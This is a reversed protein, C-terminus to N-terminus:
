KDGCGLALLTANGGVATVNITQTKETIFRLLLNSDTLVPLQELDTEIIFQAIQGKRTALRQNIAIAEERNGIFTVGAIAPAKILPLLESNSVNTVVNNVANNNIGAQYFSDCLHTAFTQQQEPLSLLVTNGAILAGSLFGIIAMEPMERQAAIVFVGRGATTLTNIEGTPGPMIIAEALLTTGRRVQYDIMKSANIVSNEILIASWDQLLQGRQEINIENWTPWAHKAESLLQQTSNLM